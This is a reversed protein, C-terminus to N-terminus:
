TRGNSLQASSLVWAEWLVIQQRRVAMGDDGLDEATLAYLKQRTTEPISRRGTGRPTLSIYEADFGAPESPSLPLDAVIALAPISEHVSAGHGHGNGNSNAITHNGGDDITNSESPLHRAYNIEHLDIHELHELEDHLFSLVDRWRGNRIYVNTLRIDRLQRKNQRLVAVVEDADLRWGQLSFTQLRKWHVRHFVQHLSLEPPRNAPFGLHIATLNRTARLFNAFVGSLKSMTSAMNGTCMHFTVDLSVLRAGLASLVTAPTQLLRISAHPSIQPGVFRITDCNSELLSISLSTVARTCAPEWELSVPEARARRRIHQVLIEDAEDQLRLLKIQQLTSFSAIARRLLLIDRNEQIIYHQDQLRCRLVNSVTPNIRDLENLAYSWGDGEYFPRVMYTFYRVHCALQMSLLDELRQFGDRSFRLVFRRFKRPTGIRMFRKCVLRFRDLDSREGHAYSDVRTDNSSQSLNPSSLPSIGSTFPEPGLLFSLIDSILEDALDGIQRPNDM